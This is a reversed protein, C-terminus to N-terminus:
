STGSHLARLVAEPQRSVVTLLARAPRDPYTRGQEWNKLTAPAVPLSSAQAVGDGAVLLSSAQPVGGERVAACLDKFADEKM